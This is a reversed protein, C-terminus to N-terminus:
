KYDLMIAQVEDLTVVPDLDLKPCVVSKYFEYHTLPTPHQDNSLLEKNAAFSNFAPETILNIYYQKEQVLTRMDDNLPVDIEGALMPFACFHHVTYNRMYSDAVVWQIYDFTTLMREYPNFVETFYNKDSITLLGYHNESWSYTDKRSIKYCHRQYSTWMVAVVDDPEAFATVVRAITANDTGPVGLNKFDTFHNGLYTAWTPWRYQTSSCGAKILRTM